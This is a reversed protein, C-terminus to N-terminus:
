RRGESLMMGERKYKNGERQYCEHLREESLIKVAEQRTAAKSVAEERTANNSVAKERTADRSVTKETTAVKSKSM